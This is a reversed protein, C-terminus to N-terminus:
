KWTSNTKGTWIKPSTKKKKKLQEKNSRQMWSSEEGVEGLHIIYSIYFTLKFNPPRPTDSVMLHWWPLSGLSLATFGSAAGRSSAPETLLWTASRAQSSPEPVCSRLEALAMPFCAHWLLTFWVIKVHWSIIQERGNSEWSMPRISLLPSATAWQGTEHAKDQLM